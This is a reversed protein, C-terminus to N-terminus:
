RIPAIHLSYSAKSSKIVAITLVALQVECTKKKKREGEMSQREAPQATVPQQTSIATEERM